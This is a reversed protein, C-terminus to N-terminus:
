AEEATGSLEPVSSDRSNPYYEDLNDRTIFIHQNYVAPPVPEGRLLKIAVDILRGGYKEPWYATSGVIRSDPRRLQQRVLRDAGQGVIVVDAERGLRRAAALAGMVADDNFSLVALRHRDPLRRLAALMQSESVESTNGSDLYLIHSPPVHGVIQQLGDLQGQIRAAPLAGARREELVILQDFRGGWNEQLWNGLAAGAMYGARYNDVGFYTAGIMPIDVAIVPIDARHFKDSILNGTTEDIQYEIALDVDQAILYDAVQLAVEGSLANDAVILDVNGARKAARELSRRVDLPFSMQDGLNAFGIKYHTLDQDCPTFSTAMGDGCVTLAARTSRLQEIFRPDVDSDTFIHSVQELGAFSTLDVRGFKSSDILAVVREACAIMRSKVQVEQIDVETLGADVSFGSCSVFATKIHLDALIKEGLHGVVSTGDPRLVGGVLIITHSSNRALALGAEIGNTVITLNHVDQLYPVMAFVTSSADLIISDGDEIMEAARRAIKRKAEAQVQVRAAFSPSAYQHSERVIAGGRVRTIQGAQQLAKLDNRITGQSVDLRRALEGVRIGSQERLLRIIRQRREFTTM